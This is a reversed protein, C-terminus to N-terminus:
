ILKKKIDNIQRYILNAITSVLAIEGVQTDLTPDGVTSKKIPRGDEEQQLRVALIYDDDLSPSGDVCIKKNERLVKLEDNLRANEEELAERSRKKINTTSSPASLSKYFIDGHQNITFDTPGIPIHGLMDEPVVVYITNPSDFVLHSKVGDQHVIELFPDFSTFTVRRMTPIWAFKSEVVNAICPHQENPNRIM